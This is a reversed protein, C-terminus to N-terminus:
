WSREASSLGTHRGICLEPTCMNHLTPWVLDYCVGTTQKQTSRCTLASSSTFKVGAMENCLWIVTVQISPHQKFYRNGSKLDNRGLNNRSYCFCDSVVMFWIWVTRCSLWMHSTAANLIISCPTLLNIQGKVQFAINKCVLHCWARLLCSELAGLRATLLWVSTFIGSPLPRYLRQTISTTTIETANDARPCLSSVEQSGDYM